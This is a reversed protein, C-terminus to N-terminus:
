GQPGIGEPTQFNSNYSDKSFQEQSFERQPRGYSAGGVGGGRGLSPGTFRATGPGGPAGGGGGGDGYGGESGDTIAKILLTELNQLCM